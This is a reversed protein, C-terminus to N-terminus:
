CAAKGVCRAADDRAGATKALVADVVSNVPAKLASVGSESTKPAVQTVEGTAGGVPAIQEVRGVSPPAIHIQEQARAISVGCLMLGFGSAMCKLRSPKM